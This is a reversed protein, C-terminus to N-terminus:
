AWEALAEVIKDAVLQGRKTRAKSVMSSLYPRYLRKGLPFLRLLGNHALQFPTGYGLPASHPEFSRVIRPILSRSYYSHVSDWSSFEFYVDRGRKKNGLRGNSPIM